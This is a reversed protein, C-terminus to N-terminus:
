PNAQGAYAAVQPVESIVVVRTEAGCAFHLSNGDATDFRADKGADIDVDFRVPTDDPVEDGIMRDAVALALKCHGQESLFYSVARKSGIDFSVAQLPKMTRIGDDAHCISVANLSLGALAAAIRFTKISNM